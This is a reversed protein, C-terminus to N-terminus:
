DYEATQPLSCVYVAVKAACICVHMCMRCNVVRAKCFSETMIRAWLQGISRM